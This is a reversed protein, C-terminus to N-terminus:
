PPNCSIAERVIKKMEEMSAAKLTLLLEGRRGGGVWGALAALFMEYREPRKGRVIYMLSAVESATRACAADKANFRGGDLMVKWMEVLVTDFMFAYFGDNGTVDVFECLRSFFIVCSRAAEKVELGGRALNLIDELGVINKATFFAGGCGNSVVHQLFM